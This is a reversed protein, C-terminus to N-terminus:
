KSGKRAPPAEKKSSEKKSPEKKPPPRREIFTESLVRDGDSDGDHPESDQACDSAFHIQEVEGDNSSLVVPEKRINANHRFNPTHIPRFSRGRGTFSYDSIEIPLSRDRALHRM